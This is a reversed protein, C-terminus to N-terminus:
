QPTGAANGLVVEQYLGDHWQKDPAWTRGDKRTQELQKKTRPCNPEGPLRSRKDKEPDLPCLPVSCHSFRPCLYMARENKPVTSLDIM